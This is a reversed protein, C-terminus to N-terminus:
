SKGGEVRWEGRPKTGSTKSGSSEAMPLASGLSFFFLPRSGRKIEVFWARVVALDRRTDFRVHLRCLIGIPIIGSDDAVQIVVVPRGPGWEVQVLGNAVKDEPSGSRVHWERNSGRLQRAGTRARKTM